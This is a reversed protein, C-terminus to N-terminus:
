HLMQYHRKNLIQSGNTQRPAVRPLREGGLFKSPICFVQLRQDLHSFNKQLTNNTGHWLVRLNQTQLDEVVSPLPLSQFVEERKRWVWVPTFWTFHPKYSLM